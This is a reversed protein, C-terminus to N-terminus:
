QPSLTGTTGFSTSVVIRRSPWSGSAPRTGVASSSRSASIRSRAPNAYRSTEPPPTKSLATRRPTSLGHSRMRAIWARTLVGSPSASRPRKRTPERGTPPSNAPAEDGDAASFPISTKRRWSGSFSTEFRARPPRPSRRPRARTRPRARRCGRRRPRPRCARRAPACAARARRPARRRGRGSRSARAARRRRARGARRRPSRAGRRRRSGPRPRCRSTRPARPSGRRAGVERRAGDIRDRERHVADGALRERLREVPRPRSVPTSTAASQSAESITSWCMPSSGTVGSAGRTATRAASYRRGAPRTAPISALRRACAAPSRSSSTRSSSERMRPSTPEGGSAAGIPWIRPECASM